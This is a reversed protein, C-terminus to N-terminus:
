PLSGFSIGSAYNFIVIFYFHIFIAFFVNKMAKKTRPKAMLLHFPYYKEGKLM